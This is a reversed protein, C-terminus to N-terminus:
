TGRYKIKMFDTHTTLAIKYRGCLKESFYIRVLGIQSFNSGIGCKGNHTCIVDGSNSCIYKKFSLFVLCSFIASFTKWIRNAYTVVAAQDSIQGM